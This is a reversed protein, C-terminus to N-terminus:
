IEEVVLKPYIGMSKLEDLMLKFAYSMEVEVIKVNEGHIPCYYKKRIKDYIATMGCEACVPIKTRDSDFREKLTVVAGFAILCDKEMEGLRLGGEKSRGETPQRTLLTVPGRARAHIKNSVLHDLKQYFSSGIFILRKFMRGSRGEYMVERGDDRYGLNNLGERVEKEPKPTFPPSYIIKGSLAALKGAIIELLQGMTMRSPIGHPNFVIDPIIGDPTFPLDEQPVILGIVGKQGHRSAFKDGIEPIKLDRVIVKVLMTGDATETIFVRDVIGKDGHRLRISSERINEIGTIFQDMSGLFRLPSIRGVLVQDSNVYTEPPVIGDEDLHKYADEGAYGRIGPKPIGIIDEQGGMYRKQEAEYTRFMYSWFLGREIASKNFVLADEMNFGLFPIFAITVNVGGPHKDYRIVPHTYTQVLPSQPYLLINCKTDVRKRYNISFMGIAQGGMKAGYNVRDGRNFEAYPILSASLGLIISPDIELHTHEPTLEDERLAIFANEEEEADLYEIIGNKILDEFTAEGNELKKIWEDTLKPKGNEVVIVPHRIRGSDTLIVVEDAFERYAVNIQNSIKGERRLKRLEEVFEKPNDVTGIFEGDLFVNTM